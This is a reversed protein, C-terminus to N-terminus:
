ALQHPFAVFKSPHQPKSDPSAQKARLTLSLPTNQFMCMTRSCGIDM